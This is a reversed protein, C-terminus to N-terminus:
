LVNKEVLKDVLIEMAQELSNIQTQQLKISAILFPVFGMYNIAKLGQIDSTLTGSEDAEFVELANLGYYLADDYDLITKGDKERPVENYKRNYSIPNMSLITELLPQLELSKMNRKTRPDSIRSYNGNSDVFSRTVYNNNFTFAGGNNMNTGAYAGVPDMLFTNVFGPNGGTVNFFVTENSLFSGSVSVGHPASVGTTVSVEQGSIGGSVRISAGDGFDIVASGGVSRGTMSGALQGSNTWLFIGSRFVRLREQSGDFLRLRPESGSELIYRTGTSDSRMQGTVTLTGSVDFAGSISGTTANIEGTITAGVAVLNGSSNIRFNNSISLGSNGFYRTNVTNYAGTQISNNTLSWGGINGSTSNLTGTFDGDTALISGDARIEFKSTKVRLTDGDWQFFNNADKYLSMKARAFSYGLWAGVNNGYSTPPADGFSVYGEGSLRSNGQFIGNSDITWNGISGSTAIVEGRAKINLAEIFTDSILWGSVDPIYDRSQISGGVFQVKKTQNGSNLQSPKVDLDFAPLPENRNRYLNTSPLVPNYISSPM